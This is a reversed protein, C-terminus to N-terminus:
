FGYVKQRRRLSEENAAIGKTISTSLKESIGEIGCHYRLKKLDHSEVISALEDASIGFGCAKVEEPVKYDTSVSLGADIFRFAAQPVLLAVRLKKQNSRKMDEAESRKPLNATFRFRRKRNKVVSCLKRWRILAEESSNKPKVGGFNENLYNEM